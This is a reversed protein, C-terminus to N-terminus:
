KIGKNLETFTIPSTNEKVAFVHCIAAVITDFTQKEARRANARAFINSLSFIMEPDYGSFFLRRAENGGDTEFFRAASYYVEEYVPIM